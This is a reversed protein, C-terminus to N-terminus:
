FAAPAAAPRSSQLLRDLLSTEFDDSSKRRLAALLKEIDSWSGLGLRGPIPAPDFRAGRHPLNRRLRAPTAAAKRLSSRWCDEMEKGVTLILLAFDVPHRRVRSRCEAYSLGADLLRLLHTRGSDSAAPHDPSKGPGPIEVFVVAGPAKLIVDVEVPDELPLKRRARAKLDARLESLTIVRGKRRRGVPPRLEGRLARRALWELREAPPKVRKWLAVGVGPSLDAPTIELGIGGSGLLRPMWAAPDIQELTRFVNWIRADTGTPDALAAQRSTPLRSLVSSYRDIILHSRFDSALGTLAPQPM